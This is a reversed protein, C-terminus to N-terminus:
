PVWTHHGVPGSWIPGFITFFIGGPKLVRYIESFAKRIDDVHEFCNSSFVADFSNDPFDMKTVSMIREEYWRPLVEGSGYRSSINISKWSKCPEVGMEAPPVSGGVELVDKGSLSVSAKFVNFYDAQDV